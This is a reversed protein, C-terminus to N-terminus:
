VDKAIEMGLKIAHYRDLGNRMVKPGPKGYYGTWGGLRAILWSAFALDDPPHPNKQKETKGELRHSITKLLPRDEPAFCDEIGRGTGGDRAKVLKLITIAAIVAMATFAIFAKPEAITAAELNFGATKVTRYMQEIFFRGRYLDVIEGARRKDAIAHSTILRWHVPKVKKPPKKERVDLATLELGAPLTRPLGDPRKFRLRTASVALKARREKRGPAAPISRKITGLPALGAMAEHLTGGDALRRDRASRVLVHQGEPLGALMEYIDSESDCVVTISRAAELRAAAAKASKLWLFSEKEEFPRGRPDAVKGGSRTWVEQDVLGLLAGASDVAIAAHVVVGRTAGGRGIPGFGWGKAASGGVWIESRDQIVAVDRGACRRGTAEGVTAAMEAVTVKGNRLFRHAQVERSRRGSM